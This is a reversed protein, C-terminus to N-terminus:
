VREAPGRVKAVGGLFPSEPTELQALFKDGTLLEGRRLLFSSEKM